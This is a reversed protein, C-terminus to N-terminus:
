GMKEFSGLDDLDDFDFNAYNLRKLQTKVRSKEKGIHRVDKKGHKEKEPIFSSKDKNKFKDTKM